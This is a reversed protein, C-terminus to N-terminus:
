LAWFGLPLCRELGHRGNQPGRAVMRYKAPLVANCTTLSHGQHRYAPYKSEIDRTCFKHLKTLSHKNERTVDQTSGLKLHLSQIKTHKVRTIVPSKLGTQLSSNTRQPGTSFFVSREIKRPKITTAQRLELVGKELYCFQSKQRDEFIKSM